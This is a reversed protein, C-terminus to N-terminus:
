DEYTALRQILSMVKSQEKLLAKRDVERMTSNSGLRDQIRMLRKALYDRADQAADLIRAVAKANANAFEPDGEKAIFEAIMEGNADVLSERKGRVFTCPYAMRSTM